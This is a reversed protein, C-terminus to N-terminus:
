SYPIVDHALGWRCATLFTEAAGAGGAAQVAAAVDVGGAILGSFIARALACMCAPCALAGATLAAPSLM